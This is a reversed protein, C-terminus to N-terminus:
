PAGEVEARFAVLAERLTLPQASLEARAKDVKLGSKPPRPSKLGADAMRVPSIVSDDLGFALALARGFTVRDVVEAGALNWMGCLRREAVEVVMDALNSALTPSVFQDSFLKIPRRERLSQLLWAGFNPRSLPPWGYVVATRAIAWAGGLTRVAQEGMHKTVAYVGSANPVDSESYPGAQGDFVYDTSLHVLLAGSERTAEALAAPGLVNAGFALAPAGECREVDTMAGANLVVDPTAEVVLRKIAAVDALDASIYRALGPFRPASERASAVVSHGRALLRNVLRSGLVGNAGTVLARM